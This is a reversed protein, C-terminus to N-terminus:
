QRTVCVASSLSIFIFVCLSGSAFVASAGGFAPCPLALALWPRLGVLRVARVFGCRLACLWARRLLALPLTAGGRRPSALVCPPALVPRAVCASFRVHSAKAKGQGAKPPTVKKKKRIVGFPHTSNCPPNTHPIAPLIRCLHISRSECAVRYRYYYRIFSFEKKGERQDPTSPIQM